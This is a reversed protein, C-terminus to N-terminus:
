KVALLSLQLLLITSQRKTWPPLVKPLIKSKIQWQRRKGGETGCRCWSLASTTRQPRDEHRPLHLEISFMNTRIRGVCFFESVAFINVVGMVIVVIGSAIVIRWFALGLSEQSTAEKNLNGLIANGLLTMTVGLM